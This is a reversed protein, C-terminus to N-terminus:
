KGPEFAAPTSAGTPSTFGCGGGATLDNQIRRSDSLIVALKARRRNQRIQARRPNEWSTNGSDRCRRGQRDPKPWQMPSPTGRSPQTGSKCWGYRFVARCNGVPRGGGIFWEDIEVQPRQRCNRSEAKAQWRGAEADRGKGATKGRFKHKTASLLGREIGPAEKATERPPKELHENGAGM